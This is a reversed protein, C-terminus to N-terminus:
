LVLYGQSALCLPLLFPFHVGFICKTEKKLKALVRLISEEPFSHRPEM